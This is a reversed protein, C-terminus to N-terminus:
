LKQIWNETITWHIINVLGLKLRFFVIFGIELAAIEPTKRRFFIFFLHM